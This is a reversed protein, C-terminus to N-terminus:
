VDSKVAYEFIVQDLHPLKPLQRVQFPCLCFRLPFVSEIGPHTVQRQIPPESFAQRGLSNM